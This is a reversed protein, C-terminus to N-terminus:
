ADSGKAAARKMDTVVDAIEQKMRAAAANEIPEVDIHIACEEADEKPTVELADGVIVFWNGDNVKVRCGGLGHIKLKM